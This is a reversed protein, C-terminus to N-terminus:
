GQDQDQIWNRNRNVPISNLTYHGERGSHLLKAAGDLKVILNGM